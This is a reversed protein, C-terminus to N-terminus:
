RLVFHPPKYLTIKNYSRVKSRIHPLPKSLTSRDWRFKAVNMKLDLQRLENGSIGSNSDSKTLINRFNRGTPQVRFYRSLCCISLYLEADISIYFSPGSDFEKSHEM